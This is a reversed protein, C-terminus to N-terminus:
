AGAQAAAVDGGVAFRMVAEESAQERALEGVITGERM